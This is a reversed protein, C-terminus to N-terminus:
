GVLQNYARAESQSVHTKSRLILAVILESRITPKRIPWGSTIARIPDASIVEPKGTVRISCHRANSVGIRAM